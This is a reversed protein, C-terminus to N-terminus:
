LESSRMLGGINKVVDNILFTRLFRMIFFNAPIEYKLLGVKINLKKLLFIAKIQIFTPIKLIKSSSDNELIKCMMDNIAVEQEKWAARIASDPIALIKMFKEYFKQYM